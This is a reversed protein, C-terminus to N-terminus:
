CFSFDYTVRGLQVFICANFVTSSQSFSGQSFLGRFNGRNDLTQLTPHELLLMCTVGCSFRTWVEHWQKMTFICSNEMLWGKRVPTELNRCISLELVDILLCLIDM